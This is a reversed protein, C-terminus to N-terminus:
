VVKAPQPFSTSKGGDLVEAGALGLSFSLPRPTPLPRPLVGVVVVAATVGGRGGQPSANHLWFGLFAYAYDCFFFFCCGFVFLLLFFFYSTFTRAILLYVFVVGYLCSPM